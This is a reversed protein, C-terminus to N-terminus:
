CGWGGGGCNGGNCCSNHSNHNSCQSGMRVQGSYECSKKYFVEEFFGNAAASNSSDSHSNCSNSNSCGGGGGCDSCGGCGGFFPGFDGFPDGGFGFCRKTRCGMGDGMSFSLLFLSSFLLLSLVSPM